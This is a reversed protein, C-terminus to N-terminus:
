LAALGRLKFNMGLVFVERSEIRSSKPKVVKTTKFYRRVEKVYEPFDEGQFVKCYFHGGDCLVKIAINLAQKSLEISKLHDSFKHGTTKPAIDSVVVNFPMKHGVLTLFDPDIINAQILEIPASKAFTVKKTKQLDVGIVYGQPGVIKSSYLSWSGPACGLDLVKDGRQLFRFKQQAEELKYVSRAPYKDKKAKKYYYDQVIKM